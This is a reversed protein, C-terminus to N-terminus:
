PLRCTEVLSRIEAIRRDREERLKQRAIASELERQAERAKCELERMSGIAYCRTACSCELTTSLGPSEAFPTAAAPLLFQLAAVLAVVTCSM